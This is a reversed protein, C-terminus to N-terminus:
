VDEKTKRNFNRLENEMEQLSHIYYIMSGLYASFSVLFLIHYWSM